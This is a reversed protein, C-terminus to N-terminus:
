WDAARMRIQEAMRTLDFTVGVAECVNHVDAEAASLFDPHPM